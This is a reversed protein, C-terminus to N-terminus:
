EEALSLCAVIRNGYCTVHAYKDRVFELLLRPPITTAIGERDPRAHCHEDKVTNDHHSDGQATYGLGAHYIHSPRLLCVVRAFHQINYSHSRHM